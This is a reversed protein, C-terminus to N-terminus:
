ELKIGAFKIVKGWKETEEAILRAFGAPSTSLPFLGLDTLRAKVQADALAANVERNLVDVIESPTNRPAAIGAFASSEFGPVTEGVTPIGPFPELQAASSVGLARVKGAKVFETSSSVPDFLVQIRGGLLDTLAPAGGRYPVHLMDVGAMMKFLEGTIHGSSGNGASGMNIKGPNAKAHAIFEAITKAPFSPNVLMVLPARVISAVPAIDRIFNFNLKENITANITASTSAHLLTYGDPAARVVVETGINTGAGPRNEIIFQQGLHDSLWQGMIRAAIDAAGGAAFPVILRVPRTPYAQGRAIRSVAALAAAGAALHLVQRRPLKV